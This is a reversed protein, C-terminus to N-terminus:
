SRATPCPVLHDAFRSPDVINQALMERSAADTLKHGREGGILIGLQYRAAARYLYMDFQDCSILATELLDIASSTNGNLAHLSADLLGRLTEATSVPNARLAAMAREVQNLLKQREGGTKKRALALACRARLQYLDLHYVAIQLYLSRRLKPWEATLRRWAEEPRDDYLEAEVIAITGLYRTQVTNCRALCTEVNHRVSDVNGDALDLPHCALRLCVEVYVDDRSSAESLAEALERRVWSLRAMQILAIFSFSRTNCLEYAVSTRKSRCDEVAMAAFEVTSRWRQQVVSLMTWALAVFAVAGDDDSKKAFSTARELQATAREWREAGGHLGWRLSEQALARAIHGTHGSRYALLAHRSGLEASRILDFGALGRGASWLIDLREHVRDPSAVVMSSSPSASADSLFKERARRLKGQSLLTYLLSRLPGPAFPLGLAKLADQTM